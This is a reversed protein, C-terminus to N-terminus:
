RHIINQMTGDDSLLIAQWLLVHHAKLRYLTSWFKKMLMLTVVRGGFNQFTNVLPLLKKDVASSTFQRHV